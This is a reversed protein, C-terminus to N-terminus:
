SRASRDEVVAAFRSREGRTLSSQSCASRRHSMSSVGQANACGGYWRARSDRRIGAAATPAPVADRGVREAARRIRLPARGLRLAARLMRLPARGLQLTATGTGRAARELRQSAKDLRPAAREGTSWESFSGRLHRGRRLAAESMNGSARGLPLSAERIPTAGGCRVGPRRLGSGGVDGLGKLAHSQSRPHCATVCRLHPSKRPLVEPM